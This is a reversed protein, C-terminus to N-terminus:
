SNMYLRISLDSFTSNYTFINFFFFMKINKNNDGKGQKAFKSVSGHLYLPMSVPM